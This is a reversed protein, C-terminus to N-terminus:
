IDGKNNACVQDTINGAIGDQEYAAPRFGFLHEMIKTTLSPYFPYQSIDGKKIEM